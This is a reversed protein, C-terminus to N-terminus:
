SEPLHSLPTAGSPPPSQPEIPIYPVEGPGRKPPLGGAQARTPNLDYDASRHRRRHHRRRKEGGESSSQGSSGSSRSHRHRHKRKKRSMYALLGAMVLSFLLLASLLLIMKHAPSTSGVASVDPLKLKDM